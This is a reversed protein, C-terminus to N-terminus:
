AGVAVHFNFDARGLVTRIRIWLPLVMEQGRAAAIDGLDLINEPKWGFADSLLAAVEKKADADNGCLFVNHDGPVRGPNVMVECNMTNLAKVVRTGPYAQQIREGLSETNCITLTPPMGRSSDLPNAVDVLTKRDLNREGAQRLAELSAAGATCNFVLDGFGAADAFTGRSAKVGASRVWDVARVNDATRSGMMVRHGARILSTGITRGVVGTGLVGIDM